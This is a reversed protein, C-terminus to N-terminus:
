SECRHSMKLPTSQVVTRGVQLTRVPNQLVRGRVIHVAFDDDACAEIAEVRRRLDAAYARYQAVMEAVTKEGWDMWGDGGPQGPVSISTLKDSM